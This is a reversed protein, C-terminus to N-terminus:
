EGDEEVVIPIGRKLCATIAAMAVIALRETDPTEGSDIVSGLWEQAKEAEAETATDTTM